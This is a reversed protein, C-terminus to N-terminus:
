RSIVARGKKEGQRSVLEGNMLMGEPGHESFEEFRLNARENMLAIKCAQASDKAIPRRGIEGFQNGIERLLVLHHEEPHQRVVEGPGSEFVEAPVIM